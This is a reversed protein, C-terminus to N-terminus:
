SKKSSGGSPKWDAGVTIAAEGRDWKKNKVNDWGCYHSLGWKDGEHPAYAFALKNYLFSVEETPRDDADGSTSWTKVICRHLKYALYVRVGTNVGKEEGALEVFYIDADGLAGGQIAAQALHCSAIDMSKSISCEQLEGVGLNIDKTGGKEGSEKLEREVGFSFSDAMFWDKGFGDLQCDGPIGPIRIAIAM